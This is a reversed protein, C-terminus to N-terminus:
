ENGRGGSRRPARKDKESPQREGQEHDVGNTEPNLHYNNFFHPNLEPRFYHKRDIWVFGDGKSIVAVDVPGGVTENTLSMRKQFWNLSVLRAAAHGLEDKPMNAVAQNIPGLHKESRQEDLKEMLSRIAKASEPKFKRKWKAKTAADIGTVADLVEDPLKVVLEAIEKVMRLEFSPNMGHLFTSVMEADAFPEIYSPKDYSIAVAPLMRCKMRGEFVEGIEIHQMVPFHESEGFGAVVIGSLTAALIREKSVILKALDYLIKMTDGDIKFNGFSDAIRKSIEGSFRSALRVAVGEPLCTADPGKSWRELERLIEDHAIQSPTLDDGGEVLRDYISEEIRESLRGYLLELSRLYFRDQLAQPFLRDNDDLYAVLARGYDELRQYVTGDLERRFMKIIIEWPVGLIAANGYVMVGVPHRKSLMFLKDASNFVKGFEGNGVTAASDTALAVGISNMVVVESTM